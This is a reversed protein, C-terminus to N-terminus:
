HHQEQGSGKKANRSAWVAEKQYTQEPGCEQSVLQLASAAINAYHAQGGKTGLVLDRRSPLHFCVGSEAVCLSLRKCSKPDKITAGSISSNGLLRKQLPDLCSSNLCGKLLHQQVHEKRCVGRQTRARGVLGETGLDAITASTNWGAALPILDIKKREREREDVTYIYIDIQTM